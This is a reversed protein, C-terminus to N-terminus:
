PSVCERRPGDYPQYTNDSARYSVYRDRCWRVHSNSGRNVTTGIVVGTTFAAAPFWFGNYRRYGPRYYSYGRHGRWSRYHGRADHSRWGNRSHRMKSGRWSKHSRKIVKVNQVDSTQKIQQQQPVPMAGAPLISSVTFVTSLAFATLSLSLRKM